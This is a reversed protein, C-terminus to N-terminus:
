KTGSRSLDLAARSVNGFGRLRPSTEYSLPCGLPLHVEAGHRSSPAFTMLVSYLPRQVQWLKVRVREREEPTLPM